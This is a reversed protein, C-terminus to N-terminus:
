YFGRGTRRQGWANGAAFPSIGGGRGTMMVSNQIAPDVTGMGMQNQPMYMNGMPNGASFDYPRLAQPGYLDGKRYPSIGESIEFESEDGGFGRIGGVGGVGGGDIIEPPLDPVDDDDDDGSAWIEEQFEEFPDGFAESIQGFIDEIGGSIFEVPDGFAESIQETVDEAAGMVPDYVNEQIFESIDGVPDGLGLVGGGGFLGGGGGHTPLAVNIPQGTSTTAGPQYFGPRPTFPDHTAVREAVWADWEERSSFGQQAWLEEDTPFNAPDIGMNTAEISGWGKM